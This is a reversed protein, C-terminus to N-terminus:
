SQSSKFFMKSAIDTPAVYNPGASVTRIIQAGYFRELQPWAAQIEEVQVRYAELIQPSKGNRKIYGQRAAIEDGDFWWCEFGAARLHRVSRLYATKFGWEIVVNPGLLRARNRTDIAKELSEVCVLPGWTMWEVDTEVYVFGRNVVLWNAFASKGTGPRGSLLVLAM